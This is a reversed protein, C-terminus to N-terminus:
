VNEAEEETEEAEDTEETEVAYLAEVQENLSDAAGSVVKLQQSVAKLRALLERSIVAPQWEPLDWTVTPMEAIAAIEEKLQRATTVTERSVEPVQQWNDKLDRRDVQQFRDRYFDAELKPGQQPSVGQAGEGQVKARETGHGSDQRFLEDAV